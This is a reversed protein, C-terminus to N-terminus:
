NSLNEAQARNAWAEDRDTWQARQEAEIRELRAAFEARQEETWEDM